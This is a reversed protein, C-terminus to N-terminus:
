EGMGELRWFKFAFGIFIMVLTVILINQLLQEGTEIAILAFTTYAAIAGIALSKSMVGIGAVATIVAAIFFLYNDIISELGQPESEVPTPEVPEVPEDPTEPVTIIASDLAPTVSDNSTTLIAEIWLTDGQATSSELLDLEYTNTGDQIDINQQRDASGNGNTDEFVTIEITTDTPLTASVEIEVNGSNTDAATVGIFGPALVSVTGVTVAKKGVERRNITESNM